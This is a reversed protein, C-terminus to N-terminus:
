KRYNIMFNIYEYVEVISKLYTYSYLIGGKVWFLEKDVDYGVSYGKITTPFGNEKMYKYSATNKKIIEKIEEDTM